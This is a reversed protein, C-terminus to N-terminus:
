TWIVSFFLIVVFFLASSQIKSTNKEKKGFTPSQTRSIQSPFVPCQSLKRAGSTRSVVSNCCGPHFPATRYYRILFSSPKSLCATFETCVAARKNVQRNRDTKKLYPQFTRNFHHEGSVSSCVAACLLYYFSMNFYVMSSIFCLHSLTGSVGKDKAPNICKHLRWHQSSSSVQVIHFERM